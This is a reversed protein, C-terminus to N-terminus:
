DAASEVQRTVVAVGAVGLTEGLAASGLENAQRIVADQEAVAQGRAVFLAAHAADAWTFLGDLGPEPELGADEAVRPRNRLAHALAKGDAQLKVAIVDLQRGSEGVAIVEAEGEAVRREAVSLRDRARVEFLEARRKDADGTSRIAEQAETLAARANQAEDRARDLNQEARRRRSPLDARTRQVATATERLDRVRVLLAHLEAAQASMEADAQELEHLLALVRERDGV